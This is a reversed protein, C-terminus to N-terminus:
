QIVSSQPRREEPSSAALQQCIVLLEGPTVLLFRLQLIRSAARRWGQSVLSLSQCREEPCWHTLSLQQRREEPSSAALQRRSVPLQQRRREEPSSTVQQWHSVPLQQCM